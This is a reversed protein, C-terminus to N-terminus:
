RPIQVKWGVMLDGRAGGGGYVSKVGRGKLVAEEGNQTGERVKVEVDGELTPIRVRGGLLAVHLPVKADHYLNSGQRRFVPSSRVNVRVFLDGAPGSASLPMDGMGPLKVRMGDEIGAPIEVDVEKKSKVRGIGDCSGCKAGRPITTGAGSCSQCTSAMIM